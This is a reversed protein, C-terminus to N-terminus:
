CGVAELLCSYKACCGLSRGRGLSEESWGEWTRSDAQLPVGVTGEGKGAGEQEWRKLM